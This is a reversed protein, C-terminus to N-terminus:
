GGYLSNPFFGPFPMSGGSSFNPMNGIANGTFSPGLVSSIPPAGGLSQNAVNSFPNGMGAGSFGMTAAGLGAGLLQPLWTGLGSQNQFQSFKGSQGTLQPSYSLGTGAASMQRQLAALVNNVNAQSSMAQNARGTQARQASMWGQGAQGGLGLAKQNQLLAAMNNQGAQQAGKQSQAAGLTYYPNGFPNNIYGGLVGGAGSTLQNYVGQSLPNFSLQSTNTGSTQNTTGM